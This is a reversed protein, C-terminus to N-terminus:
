VRVVKLTGGELVEIIRVRVGTPIFEGETLAPLEHISGRVSLQVKGCGQGDAPIRLYVIATRDVCEEPNFAGNSELKRLKKFMLVFMGVFLLGIVVAALTLLYPNEILPYFSIGAWGFGLLFHILNRVTFLSIGGGLDLTDPGDFDVDMDSSDMGILTLVTQIVFVASSVLACGWFWQLMGELQSFWLTFDEIM